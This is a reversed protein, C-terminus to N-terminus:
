NIEPEKYLKEIDEFPIMGEDERGSKKPSGVVALITIIITEVLIGLCFGSVM